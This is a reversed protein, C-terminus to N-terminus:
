GISMTNSGLFLVMLEEMNLSICGKYLSFQYKCLRSSYRQHGTELGAKFIMASVVLAALPDLFNVGLISGGACLYFFFVKM